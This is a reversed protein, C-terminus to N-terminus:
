KTALVFRSVFFTEPELGTTKTSTIIIYLYIAILKSMVKLKACVAAADSKHACRIKLKQACLTVHKRV